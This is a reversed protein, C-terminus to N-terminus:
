RGDCPRRAALESVLGLDGKYAGRLIRVWQGVRLVTGPDQPLKMIQERDAVPVLSKILGSRNNFVGPTLLLQKKLPPYLRPSEVYIWGRESPRM